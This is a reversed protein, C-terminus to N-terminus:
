ASTQRPREYPEPDRVFSKWREEIAGFQEFNRRAEELSPHNAGGSFSPDQFQVNDDEWFCVKCINFTGPPEEDLTFYGCCPCRYRKGNPTDISSLQCKGM